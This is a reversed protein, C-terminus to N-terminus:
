DASITFSTSCRIRLISPTIDILNEHIKHILANRRIVDDKANEDNEKYTYKQLCDSLYNIFDTRKMTLNPKFVSYYGIQLSSKMNKATRGIQNFWPDTESKQNLLPDTESKQNLLPASVSM